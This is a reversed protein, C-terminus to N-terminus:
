FSLVVGILFAHGTLNDQIKRRNKAARSSPAPAVTGAPAPVTAITTVM